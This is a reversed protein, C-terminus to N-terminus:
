LSPRLRVSKSVIQREPEITWPQALAFEHKQNRGDVLTLIISQIIALPDANWDPGTIRLGFWGIQQVEAALPAGRLKKRLSLSEELEIDDGREPCLLWQSLDAMLICPWVKGDGTIVSASMNVISTTRECIIRCLIFIVAEEHRGIKIGMTIEDLYVRLSNTSKDPKGTTDFAHAVKNGKEDVASRELQAGPIKALKAELTLYHRTAPDDTTLEITGDLSTNGLFETPACGHFVLKANHFKCDVFRKGDVDVAENQFTSTTITEWRPNRFAEVWSDTRIPTRIRRDYVDLAILLWTVCLLYFWIPLGLTDGHSHAYISYAMAGVGLTTAIWAAWRNHKTGDILFYLGTGFATLGVWFVADTFTM